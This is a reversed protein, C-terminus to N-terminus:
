LRCAVPLAHAECSGLERLWIFGWLGWAETPSGRTEFFGHQLGGGLDGSSPTHAPTHVILPLTKVKIWQSHSWRKCPVNVDM